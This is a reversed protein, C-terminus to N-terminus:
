AGAHHSEAQTLPQRRPTKPTPIIQPPAPEMGMIFRFLDRHEQYTMLLEAKLPTASAKQARELRCAYEFTIPTHGNKMKSILSPFLGEDVKHFYEARGLGGELWNRFYEPPQLPTDINSSTDM